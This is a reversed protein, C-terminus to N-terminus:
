FTLSLGLNVGKLTPYSSGINEPDLEKVNTLTLLNEGKVFLKCQTLSIKSILSQPLLYYFEVNRLKLFNVDKWWTSNARYNNNNTQAALRPYVPNSSVDWCNEYYERSLNAGDIIPTWMGTTGCYQTYMAAGQLLANFGFGKVRLGLNLAYNLEPSTTDYGLKVVDNENIVNDGNQDRYKFDGPRCADFEQTPSNAIDAEDKFFGIVELGWAQNVRGNVAALYDYAM